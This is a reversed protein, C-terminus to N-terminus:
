RSAPARMAFWRVHVFPVWFAYYLQNPVVRLAWGEDVGALIALDAGAWLAYYAAAYGAFSRLVGALAADHVHRAVWVRATWAAMAVFALEYVLWLTQPPLERLTLRAPLYLAATVAPVVATLALARAAPRAPAALGVILVFVRLDGLLVFLCMLATSAAGQGGDLARALPGTALPDVLTEVAWFLCYRAVFRDRATADGGPGGRAVRYALYALPVVLLAWPSQLDSLYFTHWNSAAVARDM